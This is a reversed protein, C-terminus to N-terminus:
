SRELLNAQKTPNKPTLSYTQKWESIASKILPDIDYDHVWTEDGTTVAKLFNPGNQLM